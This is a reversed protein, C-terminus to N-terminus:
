FLRVNKLVLKLGVSSGRGQACYAGEGGESEAAGGGLGTTHM